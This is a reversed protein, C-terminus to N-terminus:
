VPIELLSNVSFCDSVKQEELQAAVGDLDESIPGLGRLTDEFEKLTALETRVSTDFDKALELANELRDQKTAAMACVAEWRMRLDALRQELQTPDEVKNEDIM